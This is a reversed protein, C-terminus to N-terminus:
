FNGYYLEWLAYIIAIILVFISKLEHDIYYLCMSCLFQCFWVCVM